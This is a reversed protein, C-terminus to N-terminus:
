LLSLQEPAEPPRLYRSQLPGAHAKERAITKAIEHVYQSPAYQGPYLRRYLPILEPHRDALFRHFADKTVQGLYLVRHGVFCAGAGAAAQIVEALREPDDTLGPLIPALLVGTRIGRDVLTRVTRLRQAPPAVTPEIERARAQDMTAISVCVTVGARRAMETLIDLDRVIMPCRTVIGVPTRFDRLAELIGRTIRYRGEIAQYPDTATGLAVEERKWSPRSLERRLVAPANIKVFIKSSWGDIGDEDLFWHTRRAYCNHSIVGNAIFDGTGTTIDFLQRVGVPEIELVRLRASHKVAQGRIDRKRSIAPDVSHFFRLHERLGGRIRVVMLPRLRAHHRWECAFSFGLRELCRTTCNIIVPNTNSIRLIGDGYGGEADFIGALFGRQWDPSPDIQWGVLKEIKEFRSRTQTGIADMARVGRVGARARQFVSRQTPVGFDLLYEQARKLAEGDTLALRFQCHTRVRGELERQYFGLLGDGRVLGSLYGRKYDTARLPPTAFKGTGMLKSNRTLHPRRAAGQEAGTVFKWGRRTLFRHDGSAILQTGDELIIRYAAKEVSWHALVCTRSYRRYNGRQVTGYIPDGICIEGLPRMTGDAMLIPTEGSACFVCGHSCGRYPNISWRFPMGTVRNLVSKVDIEVFERPPM